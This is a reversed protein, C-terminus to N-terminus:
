GTFDTESSFESAFDEYPLVLTCYEVGLLVGGRSSSNLEMYLFMDREESINLMTSIIPVISQNRRPMAKTDHSLSNIGPISNM